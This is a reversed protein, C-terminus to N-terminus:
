PIRGILLPPGRLPWCRASREALIESSRRSLKEVVKRAAEATPQWGRRLPIRKHSPVDGNDSAARHPLSTPTV